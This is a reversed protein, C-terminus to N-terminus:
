PIGREFGTNIKFINHRKMDIQTKFCKSYINLNAEMQRDALGLSIGLIYKNSHCHIQKLLLCHGICM